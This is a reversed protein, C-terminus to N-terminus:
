RTPCGTVVLDSIERERQSLQAFRGAVDAYEARAARTKKDEEIAQLIRDLLLQDSFPKEVFDIAGAHLARVALPVEGYGTVMIIPIEMKRTILEQQLEMGSM